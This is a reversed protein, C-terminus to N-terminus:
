EFRQAHMLFRNERRHSASAPGPVVIVGAESPSVGADPLSAEPLVPDPVLVIEDVVDIVDMVIRDLVAHGTAGM